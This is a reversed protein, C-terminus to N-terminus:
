QRGRGGGGGGGDNDSDGQKQDNNNIRKRRRRKQNYSSKGFKYDFSIRVSQNLIIRESNSIFDEDSFESKIRTRPRFLNNMGLTIGGKDKFLAKRLGISYMNFAGRTGQLQVRPSRYFGFGQISLGWPFKYSTNLNFSFAFDANENEEAPSDFSSYFVNFNGGIRWKKTIQFSGFTSFGYTNNKAVNGYTTNNVGNEDVSQISSIANDTNRWYVSTTITNRKFFINYSLEYNDTLEPDLNPNGQSQNFNNSANLFPNLLRLSPRQIRRNYALKIKQGKKIQQSLIINPTFNDYNQTFTLETSEFDGEIDTREYRLGAQIGLKFKTQYRLSVYGAYVNQKYDFVDTQSAVNELQNTERNLTSLSFDSHVDRLIAKAGTELMMMKGFPHVYDAQFTIEQNYNDNDNRQRDTIVGNGDNEVLNYKNVGFDRSYLGLLSFEQGKKKLQKVYDINWDISNADTVDEIERSTFIDDSTASIFSSELDTDNERRRIGYRLGSSIYEKDSIDYDFTLQTNGFIGFIRGENLQSITSTTIREETVEDIGFNARFSNGESRPFYSFSRTNLGLGWKNKRYNLSGSLGANQNGGSANVNGSIGQLTNKKTIINIIGATGESDYKASPSTIVEVSKIMEAPIQRIADAVSSAMITSPKNNILVRINSSGRMEINGDLDVTLMPVKQLVDIATGGNNTIDKDANYVIRDIRDEILDKTDEVVIENLMQVDPELFIKGMNFNRQKEGITVNEMTKANYGIFSFLMKFTGSPVQNLVFKGKDDSTTGDITKDGQMIVVTAFEVPQNSKVDLVVGTIKTSGKKANDNATGPITPNKKQTAGPKGSQPWKKEQAFSFQITVTLLILLFYRQSM